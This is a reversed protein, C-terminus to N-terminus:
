EEDSKEGVLGWPDPSLLGTFLRKLVSVSEALAASIFKENLVCTEDTGSGLNQTLPADYRAHSFSGATRTVPSLSKAAQEIEEVPSVDRSFRLRKFFHMLTQKVASKTLSEDGLKSVVDLAGHKLQEGVITQVREAFSRDGGCAIGIAILLMRIRDLFVGADPATNTHGRMSARWDDYAQSIRELQGRYGALKQLDEFPILPCWVLSSDHDPEPAMPM